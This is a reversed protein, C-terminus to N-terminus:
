SALQRGCLSHLSGQRLFPSGQNRSCDRARHRQFCIACLHRYTCSGPYICDGKNWSICINDSASSQRCMQFKTHRGLFPTQQSVPVQLFNMACSKASHDAEFTTRRMVCLASPDRLGLIIFYLPQRYAQIFPIGNSTITLQLRSVSSAIM